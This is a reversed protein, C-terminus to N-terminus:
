MAQDSYLGLCHLCAEKDVGRSYSGAYPGGVCSQFSSNFNYNM